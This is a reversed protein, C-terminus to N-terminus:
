RLYYSDEWEGVSEGGVSVSCENTVLVPKSQEHKVYMFGAVALVVVMVMFLKKM